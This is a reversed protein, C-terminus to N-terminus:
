REQDRTKQKQHLDNVIAEVKSAVRQTGNEAIKAINKLADDQIKSVAPLKEIDYIKGNNLADALAEKANRLTLERETTTVDASRLQADILAVKSAAGILSPDQVAEAASLQKFRDGLRDSDDLVPDDDQAASSLKTGVTTQREIGEAVWERRYTQITKTEGTEKDITPVEVAEKGPSRFSATDGTMLENKEVADSLGIGWVTHSRGDELQLNVFYSESANEQDLYPRIGTELIKGTIGTKFDTSSIKQDSGSKVKVPNETDNATTELKIISRVDILESRKDASKIDIDRPKYGLVNIGRATGEIWLERRFDEPGKVQMKEWGRFSAIEMMELATSKDAAQTHLSFGKDRILPKNDNESRFLDQNNKAKSILFRDDFSLPLAFPDAQLKDDSIKEQEISTTTHDNIFLDDSAVM